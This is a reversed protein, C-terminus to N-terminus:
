YFRRTMLKSRSPVGHLLTVDLARWRGEDQQTEASLEVSHSARQLTTFSIDVGALLEVPLAEDCRALCELLRGEGCGVDLVSNPKITRLTELIFAQRQLFLAPNFAISPASPCSKTM